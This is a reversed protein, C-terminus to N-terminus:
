PPVHLAPLPCCAAYRYHVILDSTRLYSSSCGEFPCFRRGGAVRITSSAIIERAADPGSPAGPVEKPACVVAQPVALGMASSPVLLQVAAPHTTSLLPRAATASAMLPSSVPPASRLLGVAARHPGIAFGVERPRAGRNGDLYPHAVHGMSEYRAGDTGCPTSSHAFDYSPGIVYARPPLAMRPVVVQGPMYPLGAGPHQFAREPHPPHQLLVVPRTAAHAMDAALLHPQVSPRGRRLGAAAARVGRGDGPGDDAASRAGVVTEHRAPRTPATAAATSPRGCAANSTLGASRQQHTRWSQQLVSAGASVACTM